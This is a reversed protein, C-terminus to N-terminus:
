ESLKEELEALKKPALDYVDKSKEILEDSDCMRIINVSTQVSYDSKWLRAEKACSVLEERSFKVKGRYLVLFAAAAVLLTRCSNAGLKNVVTNVTGERLQTDSGAGSPQKEEQETAQPAKRKLSTNNLGLRVIVWSLVRERAGTDDLKELVKLVQAMAALEPDDHATSTMSTDAVATTHKMLKYVEVVFMDVHEYFSM